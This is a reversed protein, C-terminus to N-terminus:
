IKNHLLIIDIPQDNKVLISVLFVELPGAMLSKLILGLAQVLWQQVTDLMAYCTTSDKLTDHTHYIKNHLYFFFVNMKTFKLM